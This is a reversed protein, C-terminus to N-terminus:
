IKQIRMFRARTRLQDGWWPNGNGLTVEDEMARKDAPFEHHDIGVAYGIIIGERFKRYPMLRGYPDVMPEKLNRSENYKGYLKLDFPSDYSVELSKADVVIAFTQDIKFLARIIAETQLRAKLISGTFPDPLHLGIGTLDIHKHISQFFRFLDLKFLDIQIIGNDRDIVHILNHEGFLIGCFSLLISKDKLNMNLELIVSKYYDIGDSKNITSDDFSVEKVKGVKEFSLFSVNEFNSHSMTRAGSKVRIGEELKEKRHLYGNVAVLFLDRKNALSEQNSEIYLSTKMARTVEVEPHYSDHVTNIDLGMAWADIHTVYAEENKPVIGDYDVTEIAANGLSQLWANFTVNTLGFPLSQFKQFDLLQPKQLAPNTLIIFGTGYSKFLARLRLGGIAIEELTAGMKRERLWATKLQYAM